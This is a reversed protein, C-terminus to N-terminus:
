RREQEKGGMDLAEGLRKISRCEVLLVKVEEAGGGRRGGGGGGGEVSERVMARSCYVEVGACQRWKLGLVNYVEVWCM